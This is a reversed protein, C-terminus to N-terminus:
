DNPLDDGFDANVWETFEHNSDYIGLRKAEISSLRMQERREAVPLNLYNQHDIIAAEFSLRERIEQEKEIRAMLMAFEEANLGLIEREITEVKSMGLMM